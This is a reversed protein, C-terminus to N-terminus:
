GTLTNASKQISDKGRGVLLCYTPLCKLEIYIDKKKDSYEGRSKANM